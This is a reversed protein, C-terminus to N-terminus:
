HCLLPATRLGPTRSLCTTSTEEAYRSGQRDRYVATLNVRQFARMMAFAGRRLNATIARYQEIEANISISKERLSALQRNFTAVSVESDKQEARERELESIFDPVSLM